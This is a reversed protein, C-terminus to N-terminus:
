YDHYLKDRRDPHRSGRRSQLRDVAVETETARTATATPRGPSVAVRETRALPPAVPRVVKASGEGKAAARQEWVEPLADGSSREACLLEHLDDQDPATERSGPLPGDPSRLSPPTLLIRVVVSGYSRDGRRRVVPIRSRRRDPSDHLQGFRFPRSGLSRQPRSSGRM